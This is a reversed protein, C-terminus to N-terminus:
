VEIEKEFSQLLAKVEHEDVAPYEVYFDKASQVDHKMQVFIVEDAIEGIKRAAEASVIPIAVIIKLPTQKMISKLCAVMSNGSRVIDDVVIVTKYRLPVQPNNSYYKQWESHLSARLLAIQHSIYDQPIDHCNGQVVVEDLSVSGISRNKDVPDAIQRCPFVNLPLNLLEATRAAVIVGGTAIGMVVADTGKYQQLKASLLGGAEERDFVKCKEIAKM